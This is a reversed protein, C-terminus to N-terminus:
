VEGLQKLFQFAFADLRMLNPVIAKWNRPAPFDHRKCIIEGTPADLDYRTRTYSLTQQLAEKSRPLLNQL